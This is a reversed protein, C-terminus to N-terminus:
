SRRVFSAALITDALAPGEREEVEHGGGRVIPRALLSDLTPCIAGRDARGYICLVPIGRLRQLERRVSLDSARHINMVLDILHFQFGAWESPGLLAVVTIGRRLDEPLRSVMFPALDAGRSYGVVIARDRGWAASYHRLIRGLDRAAADPNRTRALYRPADLAVVSVGRAALAFSLGRDGGAFGGDGTVLVALLQGTGCAPVEILPLGAVDSTDDRARVAVPTRCGAAVSIGSGGGSGGGCGVGQSCAGVLVAIILWRASRRRSAPALDTM